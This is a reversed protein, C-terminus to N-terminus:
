KGKYVPERKELFSRHGERSDHTKMNESFLYAENQLSSTLDNVLSYNFM